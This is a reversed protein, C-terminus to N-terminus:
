QMSRGTLTTICLSKNALYNIINLVVANTRAPAKHHKSSSINFTICTTVRRSARRHTKPPRFSRRPQGQPAKECTEGGGAIIRRSPLRLKRTSLDAPENPADPAGDAIHHAAPHSRPSHAPHGPRPLINAPAPPNAIEDRGGACRTQHPAIAAHRIQRRCLELAEADRGAFMRVYFSHEKKMLSASPHIARDCM